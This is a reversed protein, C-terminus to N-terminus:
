VIISIHPKLGLRLAEYEFLSDILAIDAEALVKKQNTSILTHELM